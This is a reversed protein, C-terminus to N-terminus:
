GAMSMADDTACSGLNEFYPIQKEESLTKLASFISAGTADIELLKVFPLDQLVCNRDFYWVYGM